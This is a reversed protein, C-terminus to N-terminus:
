RLTKKVKKYAEMTLNPNLTKAIKYEDPDVEIDDIDVGRGDGRIHSKSNIQNLTKQSSAKSEKALLEDLKQGRAYFYADKVSAGPNAELLKDIDPELDKFFKENAVEAKERAIQSERKITEFDKMKTDMEALRQAAQSDYGQNVYVQRQAESEMEEVSTFGLSKALREAREVQGRM